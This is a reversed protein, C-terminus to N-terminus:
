LTVHTNVVLRPSVYTTIAAFTENLFGRKEDVLAFVGSLFRELAISAVLTERRFLLHLQMTLLVLVHQTVLALTAASFVRRQTTQTIVFQSVVRQLVALLVFTVNAAGRVRGLELEADVNALVRPFHRVFARHAAFTEHARIAQLLVGHQVGALFTEDALRTALRECLFGAQHHVSPGMSALSRVLTVHTVLPEGLFTREVRMAPQMCALLRVRTVNAAFTELAFGGHHSM